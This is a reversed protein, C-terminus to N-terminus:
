TSSSTSTEFEDIEPEPEKHKRSKSSKINLFQDMEQALHKVVDRKVDQYLTSQFKQIFEFCRTKLKSRSHAHALELLGKVNSSTIARVLADECKGALAPIFYKDSMILLDVANESTIAAKGTYIFELLTVFTDYKVDLLEVNSKSAESMGSSFM